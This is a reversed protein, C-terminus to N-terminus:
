PSPTREPNITGSQEIPNICEGLFLLLNTDFDYVAYLFPRNVNMEVANELDPLSKLGFNIESSAAAFIGSEDISLLSEHMAQSIYLDKKGNIGSFDAEATIALKIGLSRSLAKLGIKQSVIFKPLTLDVNRKEFKDLYSIFGDPKTEDQAYYFNYLDDMKRKPFFVIFSVKSDLNEIPLAVIQTDNNEFYYLSSKQNMMTCNVYSGNGLQFQKMGTRQTPFPNGWPGQLFLTNLLVMKTSSSITSPDIFHSIKGGSNNYIWENMENASSQARKFNVKEIVGGFDDEALNKYSSLVSVSKDLWLSTGIKVGRGLPSVMNRYANGVQNQPVTLHLSSAMEHATLGRAGMYAMLLSTNISLPSIITNQSKDTIYYLFMGNHNFSDALSDKSSEARLPSILTLLACIILRRM